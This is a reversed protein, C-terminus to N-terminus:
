PLPPPFLLSEIIYVGSDLVDAIPFRTKATKVTETVIETLNQSNGGVGVDRMCACAHVCVCM